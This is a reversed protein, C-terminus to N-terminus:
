ESWRIEGKRQRGIWSKILRERRVANAEEPGPRFSYRGGTIKSLNEKALVRVAMSPSNLHEILQEDGGAKLQENNFGTLLQTLARSNPTDVEQIAQIVEAATEASRDVRSMLSMVHDGWYARQDKESLIGSANFYVEPLGMNLLSQGALAAVEARRYLTAERLGIELRQEDGILDLLGQRAMAELTTSDPDPPEVWPPLVSPNQDDPKDKSADASVAAEIQGDSEGRRIWQQGVGLTSEKEDVVIVNGIVGIVGSIQSRNEAVLPDRGPARIFKVSAAAVNGATELKVAVPHQGLRLGIATPENSELLLRGHDLQIAPAGDDDRVWQVQAPGIMTIKLGNEMSMESRFTPATVIKVGVGVFMGKELRVWEGDAGGALLTKESAIKAIKNPLPQEPTEEVKKEMPDGPDTPPLDDSAAVESPAPAAVSESKPADNMAVKTPADQGGSNAVMPPPPAISEVEDGTADPTAAVEGAEPEEMETTASSDSDSVPPDSNAEEAADSVNLPQEEEGKATAVPEPTPLPLMEEDSEVEGVPAPIDEAVSEAGPNVDPITMADIDEVPDVDAVTKKELLPQFIRALAFLLVGVLALSVLWPTIRSTRISGGYARADELSQARSGAIAPGTAEHTVEAERLRTPADAVGSDGLGVPTVPASSLSSQDSTPVVDGLQLDEQEPPITVASFSGAGKAIDEVSRDPLQYIRQRLEPSVEAPKGLAMTLIQHCAAAEALHPDSELCAREIEAVQEVPLTSDLYEGIVNAEEVPGMAEPSPAPLSGSVLCARIRQVLQTAFGSETLKAKLLEADQAELTNDLYALLTRLTLRM